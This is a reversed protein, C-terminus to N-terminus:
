VREKEIDFAKTMIAIFAWNPENKYEGNAVNNIYDVTRKEIESM